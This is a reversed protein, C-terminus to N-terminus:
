QVVEIKYFGSSLNASLPVEVTADLELTLTVTKEEALTWDLAVLSDKRYVKITVTTSYLSDSITYLNTLKTATASDVVDGSVTLVAKPNAADSNDIVLSTISVSEPAVKRQVATRIAAIASSSSDSGLGALLTAADANQLFSLSTAAFATSASTAGDILAAYTAQNLVFYGTTDVKAQATTLNGYKAVEWADPLNDGDTDADEIWISTVSTNVGAKVTVPSTSCGWSEWDAKEFDGDTDIYARVYYDGPALGALVVNATENSLDVLAAMNTVIVSAAPVGSFDATEFAQVRVKGKVSSSDACSALVLEPGPYKVCASITGYGHGNFDDQRGTYTTLPATASWSDTRYKANYMSVSWKYNGVQALIKGQPTQDGVAFDATWCYYGEADLAPARKTDSEYVVAGSEDTIRLKFATYSNYGNM